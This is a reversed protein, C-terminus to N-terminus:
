ISKWTINKETATRGTLDKFGRYSMDRQFCAKDLKSQYIDRSDGPNNQKQKWKKIRKKIKASYEM